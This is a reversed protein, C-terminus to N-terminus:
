GDSHRGRDPGARHSGGTFDVGYNMWTGERFQWFVATWSIAVAVGSIM